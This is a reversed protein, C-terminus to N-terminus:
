MNRWSYDWHKWVNVYCTKSAGTYAQSGHDVYYQKQVVKYVSFVPRYIIQHHEGSNLKHTYTVSHSISQNITVGLSASIAAISTFSGSITNTVGIGSSTSNTLSISGPGYGSPGNRWGGYTSGTVQKSVVKWTYHGDIRMPKTEEAIENTEYTTSATTIDESTNAFTPVAYIFVILCIFFLIRIRKM